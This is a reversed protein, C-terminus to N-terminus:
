SMGGCVARRGTVIVAWCRGRWCLMGRRNVYTVVEIGMEWAERYGCLVDTYVDVNHTM